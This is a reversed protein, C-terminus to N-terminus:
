LERYLFDSGVDWFMECLDKFFMENSVVFYFICSVDIRCLFKMCNVWDVSFYFCSVLCIIMCFVMKWLSM